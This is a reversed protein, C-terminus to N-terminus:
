DRLSDMMRKLGNRTREDPAREMLDQLSTRFESMDSSYGDTRSMYRYSGDDRAYRGMSDRRRYSRDDYRYSKENEGDVMDMICYGDKVIDMLHYVAKIEDMTRFKGNQAITGLESEALEIMKEIHKM